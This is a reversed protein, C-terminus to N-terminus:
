INNHCAGGDMGPWAQISETKTDNEAKKHYHKKSATTQTRNWLSKTSFSVAHWFSIKRLHLFAEDM